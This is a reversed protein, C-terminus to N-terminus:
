NLPLALWGQWDEVNCGSYAPYKAFDADLANMAAIVATKNQWPPTDGYSTTIGDGVVVDVSASVKPRTIAPITDAYILATSLISIVAPQYTNYTMTRYEDICAMLLPLLEQRLGMYTVHIPQGYFNPVWSPMSPSFKLNAFHLMNSIQQYIGLWSQMLYDRDLYQTPYWVGGGTKSLQGEPVENHFRTLYQSGPGDNPEVDANFGKFRQNTAVRANYQIMASVNQYLGAPGNSDGLDGRDGNLGYAGINNATLLALFTQLQAQSSLYQQTSLSIFFDTFGYLKSQAVLLQEAAHNGLVENTNWLWVGRSM